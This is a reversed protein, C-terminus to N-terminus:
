ATTTRAHEALLVALAERDDEPPLQRTL